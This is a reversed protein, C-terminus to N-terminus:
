QIKVEIEEEKTLKRYGKESNKDEIYTERTGSEYGKEIEEFIDNYTNIVADLTEERSLSSDGYNNSM